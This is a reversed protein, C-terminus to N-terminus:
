WPGTPGTQGYLYEDGIREADDLTVGVNALAIELRRARARNALRALARERPSRTDWHFHDRLAFKALEEWASQDWTVDGM